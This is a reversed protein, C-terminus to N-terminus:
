RPHVRCSRGGARAPKEALPLHVRNAQDSLRVLRRIQDRDAGVRHEEVELRPGRRVEGLNKGTGVGHDERGAGTGTTTCSALVGHITATGHQEGVSRLEGTHPAVQHHRRHACIGASCGVVILHEAGVDVRFLSGVVVDPRAIQIPRDQSRTTERQRGPGTLDLQGLM